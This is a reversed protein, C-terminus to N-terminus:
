RETIHMSNHRPLPAGGARSTLRTLHLFQPKRRRPLPRRPTSFRQPLQTSSSSSSRHRDEMDAEVEEATRNSTRHHAVMTDAKLLAAMPVVTAAAEAMRAQLLDAVMDAQRAAMDEARLVASTTHLLVTHERDAEESRDRTSSEM